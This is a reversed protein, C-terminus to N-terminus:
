FRATARELDEAKLIALDLNALEYYIINRNPQPALHDALQLAAKELLEADVEEPKFIDNQKIYIGALFFSKKAKFAEGFRTFCQQDNLANRSISVPLGTVKGNRSHVSWSFAPLAVDLPLPYKDLYNIYNGADTPNYISNAGGADATVKGMNYFMLIGRSVPPVGTRFQYKVQHLRITAQLPRGDITKFTKLFHFYRERTGTTWDCDFQIAKYNIQQAASLKTILNFTNHALSDAGTDSLHQFVTNRIFIVPTLSLSIVPQRFRIIADPYARQSHDDWAIDFFHLYLHNGATSRLLKSQANNLQFTSKWYYFATQATSPTKRCSTGSLTLM